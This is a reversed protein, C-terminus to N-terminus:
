SGVTITDVITPPETTATIEVEAVTGPTSTTVTGTNWTIDLTARTEHQSQGTISEIGTTVSTAQVSLGASEYGESLDPAWLQPELQAAFEAADDDFSESNVPGVFTISVTSPGWRRAVAAASGHDGVSVREPAPGLM